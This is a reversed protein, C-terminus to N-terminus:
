AENREHSKRMVRPSPTGGYEAEYVWFVFKGESLSCLQKVAAETFGNRKLNRLTIYGDEPILDDLEQFREKLISTRTNYLMEVLQAMVWRVFAVARQATDETLEGAPNSTALHLCLAVRVAQERYRVLWARIDQHEGNIWTVSENHAERFVEAAAPTCEVIQPTDGTKFRDQLIGSLLSWWRGEKEHNLPPRTGDDFVMPNELPIFLFRGLLGRDRAEKHCLAERVIVPQVMGLLSVCPSKVYIQGSGMRAQDYVEGTFGSLLLDADMGTDRFLGLAVRVMDGAEPSFLFATESAMHQLGNALASTTASGILLAPNKKTQEEYLAIKKAVDNRDSQSVEITHKRQEARYKDLHAKIVPLEELNWKERRRNQEDTIPKIIQNVVSKHSGTELGFLLFLNAYSGFGSAGGTVRSGKGAAGSIAGLMMGLFLPPPVGYTASLSEAYERMVPTFSEEPFDGGKILPAGEPLLLDDRTEIVANM